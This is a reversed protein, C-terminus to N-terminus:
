GFCPLVFFHMIHIGIYLATTIRVCRFETPTVFHIRFMNSSSLLEMNWITRLASLKSINKFGRRSRVNIDGSVIAKSNVRWLLMCLRFKVSIKRPVLLRAYPLLAIMPHIKPSSAIFCSFSRKPCTPSMEVLRHFSYIFRQISNLPIFNYRSWGKEEIM